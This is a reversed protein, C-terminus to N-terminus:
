PSGLAATLGEVMGEPSGGADASEDRIVGRGDILWARPCDSSRYRITTGMDEDVLIPWQFGSSRRFRALKQGAYASPNMTVAVVAAGKPRLSAAALARDFDNCAKCGCNFVVIVPRGRLSLLSVRRAPQGLVPLDFDPARSGVAAMEPASSGARVWLGGAVLAALLGAGILRPMSAPGRSGGSAADPWSGENPRQGTRDAM